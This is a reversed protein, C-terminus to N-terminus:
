ALALWSQIMQKGEIDAPHAKGAMVIQVPRQRDSLLRVLRDRDHLLILQDDATLELDIEVLDAGHTIGALVAPVTNEPHAHPDGRHAISLVTRRTM